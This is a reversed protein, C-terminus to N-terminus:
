EGSEEGVTVRARFEESLLEQAGRVVVSDGPLWPHGVVWGGTTPRDTAVRLRAFSGPERLVYAWALGEWQIVAADPMLVGALAPGEPVLADVRTGPVAASWRHAARYLYTPRRTIPDAEAAPGVLAAEIRRSGGGPELALRRRVPGAGELWVVRVVPHSRDAIELLVQGAEVLDGPRAGVRTVVGSLSAALPRADSVQGLEAGAAVSDGLKPWSRGEIGALRGSMPARLAATREPEAVVEAPLRRERTRSTRQLQAVGLDIRRIEASDLVVRTEGDAVALRSPAVISEDGGEEGNAAERGAIGLALAAGVLAGAVLLLLARLASTM